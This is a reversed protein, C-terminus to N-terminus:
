RATHFDIHALASHATLSSAKEEFAKLPAVKGRFAPAAPAKYLPTRYYQCIHGALHPKLIPSIPFANRRHQFRVHAIDGNINRRFHFRIAALMM